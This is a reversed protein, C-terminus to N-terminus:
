LRIAALLNGRELDRTNLIKDFEQGLHVASPARAHPHKSLLRVVLADLDAGIEPTYKSPPEPTQNVHADFLDKTNHPDFPPRGTLMHYVTAGLGYLDSRGDVSRNGSAQEPSIYLPTGIAAGRELDALTDDQIKRALGLDIVKLQGTRSIVINHPKLDRHVIQLAHLHILASCVEAAIQLVQWEELRRGDSLLGEVSYGDVYEMVMYAQGRARGLEYVNPWYPSQIEGGLRAERVLAEVYQRNRCHRRSLVKIAVNRNLSKQNALFVTGMSGSGLQEILRYDPLEDIRDLHHNEDILRRLQSVTLVHCLVMYHWLPRYQERRADRIRQKKCAAIEDDTLFGRQVADSIVDSEHLGEPWNLEALEEELPVLEAPATPAQGQSDSPGPQASGRHTSSGVSNSLRAKDSSAPNSTSASPEDTTTSDAEPQIPHSAM